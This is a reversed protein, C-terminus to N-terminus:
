SIPQSARGAAFLERQRAGARGRAAMKAKTCDSQSTRMQRTAFALYDSPRFVASMMNETLENRRSAFAKLAM